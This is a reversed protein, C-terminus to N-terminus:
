DLAKLLEDFEEDTENGPWMGAFDNFPNKKKGQKAQFLVQQVANMAKPKKSFYKDKEEPKGFGQMEVFSLMGGVRYNAMGQITCDKGFFTTMENMLQTDKVQVHVNGDDTILVLQSKTHKLEDVKGTIIVKQPEPISDDLQEIKKFDERRLTIHPISQRNSFLITEKNSAFSKKFQLLTKLLPKDLHNKDDINDSLAASFSTIVLSMPTLASLEELLKPKFFDLQFEKISSALAGAELLLHTGEEASGSVKELTIHLANKINSPVKLDSYGFLKLMLAKQAIDKTTKAINALKELEITGDDGSDGKIKIDYNM